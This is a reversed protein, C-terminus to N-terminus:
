TAKTRALNRLVGIAWRAMTKVAGISTLQKWRMFSVLTTKILLSVYKFNEAYNSRDYGKQDVAAHAYAYIWKEPVTGIRQKLMDNIEIHVAIKEGITKNEKYMRSGALKEKLYVFPTIAGIRLWYEYDMCYRLEAKLLGMKHILRRRFFVAPQCLFCIEKLREYDWDETHYPEIVKDYVDIHDADGYVIDVEPNNDFFSLVTTLAGPVYIDDSNLWGIVEGKTARIGKNVADAQGDDKESIWCLRDEYQRLIEVTNDTSGGDMVVFELSSIGQSLVSRITREIFRGQNYSPTVVSISPPM